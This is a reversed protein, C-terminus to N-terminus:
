SVRGARGAEWESRLISYMRIDWFRGRRLVASRITGEYTLGAKELVRGSSMNPTMVHAQVREAAMTEFLYPILARIAETAIGRGWFPVAIWYGFEVCQNAQTNWRGGTCGILRDPDDKLAIGFPEALGQEYNPFAYNHIFTTTADRSGHTEFLTYETLRSDSCAAYIAEADDETVARLILRPTELTPPTWNM